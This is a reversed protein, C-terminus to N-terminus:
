ITRDGGFAPGYWLGIAFGRERKEDVTRHTAVVKREVTASENQAPIPHEYSRNMLEPSAWAEIVAAATPPDTVHRKASRGQIDAFNLDYGGDAANIQVVIRVCGLIDNTSVGNAELAQAIIARADADGELRIAPICTEPAAAAQSTGIAAFVVVFLLRQMTKKYSGRRKMAKGGALSARRM